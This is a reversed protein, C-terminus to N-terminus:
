ELAVCQTAGTENAANITSLNTQRLNSRPSAQAHQQGCHRQVVEDRILRLQDDQHSIKRVSVIM